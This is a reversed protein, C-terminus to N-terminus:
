RNRWCTWATLGQVNEIYAAMYGNLVPQVIGEEFVQGTLDQFTTRWVPRNVQARGWDDTRGVATDPNPQSGSECPLITNHFASLNRGGGIQYGEDWAAQAAANTSPSGLEGSRLVAREGASLGSLAVQRNAEEAAAVEAAVKEAAALEIAGEVAAAIDPADAEIAAIATTFAKVGELAAFRNQFTETRLTMLRTETLELEDLRNRDIVKPEDDVTGFDGVPEDLTTPAASPAVFAAQGAGSEVFSGVSAAGVSAGFIVM